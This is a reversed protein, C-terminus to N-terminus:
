SAPDGAVADSSPSAPRRSIPPRRPGSLRRGRSCRSSSEAARDRARRLGRDLRRADAETSAWRAQGTDTDLAYMLQTPAPHAADFRDVALGAGTCPSRALSRRAASRRRAGRGLRGGSASRAPYLLEFVPLLALRAHGRVAGRRRRHGPGARPLVARGDAGPRGGRGRRRRLAAVACGVARHSALARGLGALAGALAPLAALYSGGPAVAALVVGLVALWGLAGIALPWAGFRRRLLGYWTLLVAAVLAVAALRFWGPRWPDICARRLGPRILSWCGWLLQAAVPALLLPVLPWCGAAWRPAAPELRAPAAVCLVLLGVAVCRSCRWRGSWGDRYRSWCASCRSTPRTAPPRSRCRPWTPTASRGPWRWRTTATTSCAAGTWTSPVDQPTHYVASGDIYATNLGTFRGSDRFPTFDTDNPLIRYVEVAFSTASRTRRPRGTCARRSRRQRPTTEFMIAPGTSAAPSSTSCWGAAPPSRISRRRVGGRRVPLGGRRRHVPLRHRQAAAPRETLARATELLDSVGAGDDNAGYSVQVSDYHAMLFVRGTPDRAPCCPSSTACGPWRTEGPADAAGVAEQM